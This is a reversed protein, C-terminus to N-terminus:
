GERVQWTSFPRTMAQKSERLTVRIYLRRDKINLYIPGLVGLCVSANESALVELSKKASNHDNKQQHGSLCHTDTDAKLLICCVQDVVDAFAHNLM